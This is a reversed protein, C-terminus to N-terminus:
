PVLCKKQFENDSLAVEPIFITLGDQAVEGNMTYTTSDTGAEDSNEKVFEYAKITVVKGMWQLFGVGDPASNISKYIENYIDTFVGDMYLSDGIINHIIVSVYGSTINYFEVYNDFNGNKMERIITKLDM